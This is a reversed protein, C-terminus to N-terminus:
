MITGVLVNVSVQGMSVKADNQNFQHVQYGLEAGIYFSMKKSLFYSGGIFGGYTWGTEGDGTDPRYMAVGAMPLIYADYKLYKRLFTIKAVATIDIYNSRNGQNDEWDITLYGLQGGVKVFKHVPHLYYVGLGYSLEMPLDKQLGEVEFNGGFGTLLKAGGEKHLKKKSVKSYGDTTWLAVAMLMIISLTKM